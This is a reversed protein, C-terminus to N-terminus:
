VAQALGAGGYCYATCLVEVSCIDSLELFRFQRYLWQM